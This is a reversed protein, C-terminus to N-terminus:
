KSYHTRAGDVYRVIFADAFGVNKVKQLMTAADERKDFYSLLIRVLAPNNESPEIDIKGLGDARQLKRSQLVDLPKDSAMLQIKYFTGKSPMIDPLASKAATKATPTNDTILRVSANRQYPQLAFNAYRVPTSDRSSFESYAARYGDYEAEVHYRREALLELRYMGLSDSTTTTLLRQDDVGRTEYLSILADPLPTQTDKAWVRGKLLLPQRRIAAYQFIDDDLTSLKETGFTRNSVFFGGTLSKNRTFYWDDAASNFPAGLNEPSQWRNERGKAKFIDLGGLVARGNSSFYLTSDSVDYFPTVEDAPTNLITGANHPLDFDLDNGSLDRVTYWIDMGGKGGKRDSAFYLIERKGQHVVYPQTTNANEANIYDRLKTPPLWNGAERRLVFLQAWQKGDKDAASLQTYYFRSLDPSFCGNGFSVNAAIPLQPVTAALWDGNQAQTRLLRNGTRSEYNSTFYLVDDSFAIPALEDSSSNIAENLHDLQLNVNSRESFRIGLTCGAIEQEVQEAVADRDKGNYQNLFILLEPNAEDYQGLQKIALAYYLQAKPYEKPYNKLLAFTVAARRYDRTAAFLEASQILLAIKQPKKRYAAELQEAAAHRENAKFAIEAQRVHQKWTWNDTQASANFTAFVFVSLILLLSKNKM